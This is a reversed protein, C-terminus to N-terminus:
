RPTPSSPLARQDCSAGLANSTIVSYSAAFSTASGVASYTSSNAGAIAVGNSLWQYTLGTGVASVTLTVNRVGAPNTAGIANTVVVPDNVLLM